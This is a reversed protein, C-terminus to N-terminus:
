GLEGIRAHLQRTLMREYRQILRGYLDLGGPRQIREQELALVRALREWLASIEPPASNTGPITPALVGASNSSRLDVSPTTSPLDLSRSLIGHKLANRRAVAKGAETRPGTSRKANARNAQLKRESIPRKNRLLERQGSDPEGQKSRTM